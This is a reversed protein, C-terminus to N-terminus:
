LAQEFGEGDNRAFPKQRLSGPADLALRRAAISQRRIGIGNMELVIHQDRDIRAALEIGSQRAQPRVEDIQEVDPLLVAHDLDAAPEAIERCHKRLDHAGLAPHMCDFAVRPKRRAGRGIKAGIAVDHDDM